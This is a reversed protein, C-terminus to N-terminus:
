EPMNEIPIIQKSLAILQIQWHETNFNGIQSKGTGAGCHVCFDPHMDQIKCGSPDREAAALGRATGCTVIM